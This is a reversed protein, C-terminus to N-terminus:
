AQMRGQRALEDLVRRERRRRGTMLTSWHDGAIPHVWITYFGLRNGGVIDSFIQDGVMVCETPKAGLLKLAQHFPAGKPKRNWFYGCVVHSIGMEQALRHLRRVRHGPVIVNSILCIDQIRGSARIEELKALVDASVVQGKQALLTNDLDLCLFRRGGESFVKEFDIDQFRQAVLDPFRNPM